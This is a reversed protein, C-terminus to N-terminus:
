ADRICDISHTGSGVKFKQWMRGEVGTGWVSDEFHVTGPNWSMLSTKWSRSLLTKQFLCLRSRGPRRVDLLQGDILVTVLHEFLNSGPNLVGPKWALPLSRCRGEDSSEQAATCRM